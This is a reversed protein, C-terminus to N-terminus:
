TGGGVILVQIRMLGRLLPLASTDTTPQKLSRKAKLWYIAFALTVFVTTLTLIQPTLLSEPLFGFGSILLLVEAGIIPDQSLSSNFRPLGLQHSFAVYSKWQAEHMTLDPRM